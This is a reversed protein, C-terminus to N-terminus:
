QIAIVMEKGILEYKELDGNTPIFSPDWLLKDVFNLTLIQDSNSPLKTKGRWWQGLQSSTPILILRDEEFSATYSLLLEFYHRALKYAASDRDLFISKHLKIKDELLDEPIDESLGKEYAKRTRKKRMSSLFVSYFAMLPFIDYYWETNTLNHKKLVNEFSLSLYMLFPIPIFFLQLVVAFAYEPNSGTRFILIISTFFILIAYSFIFWLKGEGVSHVMSAMMGGLLTFGILQVAQDFSAGSLFTVSMLVSFVIASYSAAQLGYIFPEIRRETLGGTMKNREDLRSTEKRMSLAKDASILGVAIGVTFTFANITAEKLAVPNTRYRSTVDTLTSDQTAFVAFYLIALILGHSIASKIAHVSIVSPSLERTEWIADRSYFSFRSKLNTLRVQQNYLELAFPILAVGIIIIGFKIDLTSDGTFLKILNLDFPTNKGTIYPAISDIRNLLHLILPFLFPFSYLLGQYSNIRYFGVSTGRATESVVCEIEDSGLRRSGRIVSRSPGMMSFHKFGFLSYYRKIRETVRRVQISIESM